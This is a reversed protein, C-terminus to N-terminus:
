VPSKFAFQLNSSCVTRDVLHTQGTGAGKTPETKKKAGLSGGGGGSKFMGGGLSQLGGLTGAKVVSGQGRGMMGMMAMAHFDPPRPHQIMDHQGHLCLTPSWTLM